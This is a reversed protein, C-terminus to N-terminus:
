RGAYSYSYVSRSDSDAGVLITGIINVRSSRLTRLAETIEQPRSKGAGVVLIAADCHVAIEVPDVVALLPPSDIFIQDYRSWLKELTASFEHSRLLEIARSADVRGSPLVDLNATDSSSFIVDDLTRSGELCDALGVRNSIGLMDSATPRYLDAEILLTRTGGAAALRALSVATSSKGEGANPSTVLITSFRDTTAEALAIGSIARQYADDLGLTVGRKQLRPITALHPLPVLESLEETDTVTSDLTEVSFVAGLALILGAVLALSLNRLVNPETAGSPVVAPSDIRASLEPSTLLDQQVRLSSLNTQLNSLQTDLAQLETRALEVLVLREAGLRAIEVPDDAIALAEDLVQTPALLEDRRERLGEVTDDIAAATGELEALVTEHRLNLYTEAWANAAAAADGPNNSRAVLDITSAAQLTFVDADTDRIRVTAGVPSAAKAADQFVTSNIFATEGAVSRTVPLAGDLAFLSTTAQTRVLVTSEAEYVREQLMTVAIATAVILAFVGLAVWRRKRIIRLYDSLSLETAFQGPSWREIGAEESLAM